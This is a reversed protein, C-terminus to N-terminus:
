LNFEHGVLFAVRQAWLRLYIKMDTGDINRLEEEDMCESGFKGKGYVFSLGNFEGIEYNELECISWHSGCIKPIRLQAQQTIKDESDMKNETINLRGLKKMKQVTKKKKKSEGAAQQLSECFSGDESSTTSKLINEEKQLMSLISFNHPQFFLINNHFWVKDMAEELNFRSCTSIAAM